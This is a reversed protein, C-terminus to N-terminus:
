LLDRYSQLGLSNCWSSIDEFMKEPPQPWTLEPGVCIQGKKNTSEKQCHQPQDIIIKKTPSGSSFRYKGSNSPPPSLGFQKGELLSIHCHFIGMNLLSYMKSLDMTWGAM